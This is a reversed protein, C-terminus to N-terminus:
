KDNETLNKVPLKIFFLSSAINKFTILYYNSNERKIRNQEKKVEAGRSPDLTRMKKSQSKLPLKQQFLGSKAFPVAFLEASKMSRSLILLIGEQWMKRKETGGCTPFYAEKCMEKTDQGFMSAATARVVTGM